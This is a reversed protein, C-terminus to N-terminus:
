RRFGGTQLLDLAQLNGLDSCVYFWMVSELDAVFSRSQHNVSHLVIPYLGTRKAHKNTQSGGTPHRNEQHNLPKSRM